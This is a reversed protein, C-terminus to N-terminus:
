QLKTLSRSQANNSVLLAVRPRGPHNLSPRLAHGTCRDDMCNITQVYHAPDRLTASLLHARRDGAEPVYFGRTPLLPGSYFRGLAGFDLFNFRQRVGQDPLQNM